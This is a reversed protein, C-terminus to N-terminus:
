IQCEAPRLLTVVRWFLFHIASAPNLSTPELTFVAVHDESVLPPDALGVSAPSTSLGLTPLDVAPRWPSRPAVEGVAPQLSGLGREM